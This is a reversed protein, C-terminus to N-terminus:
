PGRELKLNRGTISECLAGFPPSTGPMAHGIQSDSQRHFTRRQRWCTEISFATM